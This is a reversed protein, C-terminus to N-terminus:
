YMIVLCTLFFFIAVSYHLRAGSSPVRGGQTNTMSPRTVGVSGGGRSGGGSNRGGSSSSRSGGGGGRGGGGGGALQRRNFDAPFSTTEAILQHRKLDVSQLSDQNLSGVAEIQTHILLSLFLHLMIYHMKLKM